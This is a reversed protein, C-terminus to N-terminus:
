GILAASHDVDMNRGAGFHVAILLDNVVPHVIRIDFHCGSGLNGGHIDSFLIDEGLLFDIRISGYLIQPQIKKGSYTLHGDVMGTASVGPFVQIVLFEEHAGPQVTCVDSGPFFSIVQGSEEEKSPIVDNHIDTGGVFRIGKYAPDICVSIVVPLDDACVQDLAKILQHLEGSLM